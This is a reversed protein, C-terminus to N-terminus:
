VLRFQLTKGCSFSVPFCSMMEIILFKELYIVQPFSRPILTHTIKRFVRMGKEKTTFACKAVRKGASNNRGTPGMPM